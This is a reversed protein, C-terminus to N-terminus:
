LAPDFVPKQTAHARWPLNLKKLIIFTWPSWDGAFVDSFTFLCKHVWGYPSDDFLLWNHLRGLNTDMACQKLRKFWYFFVAPDQYTGQAEHFPLLSGVKIELIMVLSSTQTLRSGDSKAAEWLSVSSSQTSSWCQLHFLFLVAPVPLTNRNTSKLSSSTSLDNHINEIPINQLSPLWFLYPLVENKPRLKLAKQFWKM